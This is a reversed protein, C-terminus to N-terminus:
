GNSYWDKQLVKRKGFAQPGLLTMRMLAEGRVLRKMQLPWATMIRLEVGNKAM